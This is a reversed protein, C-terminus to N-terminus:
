VLVPSHNVKLWYEAAQAMSARFEDFDMAKKIYSNAGLSYSKLVDIAAESSSLMAIPIHKFDPTDKIIKLAELGSMRPMNIDLLILRINQNDEMTRHSYQNQCTLYEVLEKGDKLHHICLSSNATQLAMVALQAEFESDDVVVVTRKEM